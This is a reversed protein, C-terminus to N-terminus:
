DLLTIDRLLSLDVPMYRINRTGNTLALLSYNGVVDLQDVSVPPTVPLGTSMYFNIVSEFPSLPSYMYLAASLEGNRLDLKSVTWRHAM